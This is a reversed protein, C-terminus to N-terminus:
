ATGPALARARAIMAAAGRDLLTDALREGIAAGDDAAGDSTDELFASGDIEAVLARMRLRSGEVHAHAALPTQCDGGIRRLFAREAAVASAGPPDDLVAVLDRV